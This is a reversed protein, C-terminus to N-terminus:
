FIEIIEMSLILYSVPFAFIIGDIRDLLGGHGPIIKGTDKIKSKRKFYSILIDGFQSVTSILVVFILIEITFKSSTNLYNSNLFINISIITLFYSGITGAYTKKPSIKTLKPGKFIKGFIYGGVDTSICITLIFLINLVNDDFENRLSYISYFSLTILISGVFVYSTKISM